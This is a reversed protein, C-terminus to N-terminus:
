SFRLKEILITIMLAVSSYRFAPFGDGVVLELTRYLVLGADPGRPGCLRELIQVL